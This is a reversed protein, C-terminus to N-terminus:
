RSPKADSPVFTRPKWIEGLLDSRAPIRELDPYRDGGDYAVTYTRYFSGNTALLAIPAHSSKSAKLARHFLDVSWKRGNVAVLKMGPALGSTAAPSAPRVDILNASDPDVVFGISYTFYLAKGLDEASKFYPTQTEHYVVRWGAREIGSLPARPAIAYVRERFFNKWDYPAVENLTAVVQDFDYPRVSPIESGGAAFSRCFDDLSKRGHTLERITTDADLWILTGEDYFDVSRRYNAWTNPAAYLFPAAAATDSLPRWRRGFQFSLEAGIAALVARSESLSWLRSRAALVEGTYNTLGEYVWLLDDTMPEQFDFTALGSPRRYKGNWSHSFEHPLLEALARFVGPDILYAEPTRDDSSEHHEIGVLPMADSLTLLFRYSRYHRPGYLAPAEAVLHRLGALEDPTANMADASDAVIDLVHPVPRSSLEVVRHFLGMHLPSDVLRELTVPEFSVTDNERKAQPLASGYQWGRPLRLAARVSQDAARAAKPYVLVSSWQLAATNATGVTTANYGDAAANGVVDFDVAISRAAPPAHCSFAYMDVLDREWPVNTGDAAVRLGIVNQIAGTPTHWGPIWKPYVFHCGGPPIPMEVKVHFLNRPAERADVFISMSEGAAAPAPAVMGASCFVAGLMAYVFCRPM